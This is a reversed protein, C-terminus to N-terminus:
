EITPTVVLGAMKWDASASEDAYSLASVSATRASRSTSETTRARVVESTRSAQSTSASTWRAVSPTSPRTERSTSGPRAWSVAAVTVCATSSESATSRGFTMILIGAVDAPSGAMVSTMPLPM